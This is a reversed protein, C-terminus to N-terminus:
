GICAGLSTSFNRPSVKTPPRFTMKIQALSYFSGPSANFKHKGTDFHARSKFKELSERERTHNFAGRRLGSNEFDFRLNDILLSTSLTLYLFLSVGDDGMSARDRSVNICSPTMRSVKVYNLGEAAHRGRYSDRAGSDKHMSFFCVTRTAEDRRALCEGQCEIRSHFAEVERASFKKKKQEQVHVLACLARREFTKLLKRVRRVGARSNGSLAATIM